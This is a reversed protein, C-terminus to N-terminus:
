LTDYGILFFISFLFLFLSSFQCLFFIFFYLFSFLSKGTLTKIFLQFGGLLRAVLSLTDYQQINYSSITHSDQLFSDSFYEIKQKRQQKPKGDNETKNKRKLHRLPSAFFLPFFFSIFRFFGELQKGLFTLHQGNSPIHAKQEIQQKVTVILEQPDTGISLISGNLTKVFIQM